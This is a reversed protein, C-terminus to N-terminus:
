GGIATGAVTCRPESANTVISNDHPGGISFGSPGVPFADATSSGTHQVLIEAGVGSVNYVDLTTLNSECDVDLSMGGVNDVM